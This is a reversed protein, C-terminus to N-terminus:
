SKAKFRKNLEKKVERAIEGKWTTANSLFYIVIEKGSDAGYNDAITELSGMADLYPVAGFYVPKWTNRVLRAIASISMQPLAQTLGPVTNPQTQM